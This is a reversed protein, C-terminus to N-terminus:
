GLFDLGEVEGVPDEDQVGACVPEGSWRGVDWCVVRLLGPKRLVQGLM